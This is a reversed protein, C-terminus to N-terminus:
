ELDPLPQSRSNASRSQYIDQVLQECDLLEKWGGVSAELSDFEATPHTEETVSIIGTEGEALDVPTAPKFVGSAFTAKLQQVM